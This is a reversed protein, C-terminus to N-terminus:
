RTVKRVCKANDWNRERAYLAVLYGLLEKNPTLRSLDNLCQRQTLRVRIKRVSARQAALLVFHYHIRTGSEVQGEPTPTGDANWRPLAKFGNDARVWRELLLDSLTPRGLLIGNVHLRMFHRVLATAINEMDPFDRHVLIECTDQDRYKMVYYSARLLGLTRLDIYCVPTPTDAEHHRLRRANDFARHAPSKLRFLGGLATSRFRKVVLLADNPAEVVKVEHRHSKLPRAQPTDFLSPVTKLFKHLFQYNVHIFLKM